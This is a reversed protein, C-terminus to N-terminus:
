FQIEQKLQLSTKKNTQMVNSLFCKKKGAFKQAESKLKLVATREPSQVRIAMIINELVM